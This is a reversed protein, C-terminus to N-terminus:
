INIAFLKDQADWASNIFVNKEIVEGLGNDGNMNVIDYWLGYRGTNSFTGRGVFFVYYLSDNEPKQVIVVRQTVNPDDNMLPSGNLMPDLNKNYLINGDSYFLLNGLSDCM